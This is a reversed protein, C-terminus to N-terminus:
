CKCHSEYFVDTIWISSNSYGREQCLVQQCENEFSEEEFVDSFVWEIEVQDETASGEHLM